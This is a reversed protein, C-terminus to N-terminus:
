FQIAVRYHFLKLIHNSTRVCYVFTVSLLVSLRASVARRCLGRKHMTDRPLLNFQM